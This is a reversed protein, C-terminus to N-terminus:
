LVFKYILIVKPYHVKYNKAAIADEFGLHDEPNISLKDRLPTTGPTMEKGKLGPTRGPTTGTKFDYCMQFENAFFM